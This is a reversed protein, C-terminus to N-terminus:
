ETLALSDLMGEGSHVGGESATAPKSRILYGAYGSENPEADTMPQGNFHVTFLGIESILNDVVKAHGDRIALAPREREHPHLRQMLAWADQEAASISQLKPLIDDGFICHGGGEGQNKLVWQSADGHAAFWDITDADVPKMEALVQKVQEAEVLSLGWRGLEAASMQTVLMQITKSTALQQSVTANVAVKHQEIQVRTSTLAECCAQEVIDTSCYDEYQYGARLYVADISGIGEVRLRQDAGTEIKSHLQRFSRRVTRVGREQLALELLRQDYVNDENDQVIMLFVPSGSEGSAFRIEHAAKAVGEALQELAQNGALASDGATEAWQQYADPWQNKLYRHLQHVRQGFPGMGAAIGNFEIVKPGQERDDMYDTRMMLLPQRVAAKPQASTGHIQQHLRLLHGFFPDAQGMPKLAQQLFAHDESIRDILRAILPTVQKLQTFMGQSISVPALSFACHRASGPGTKMAMGHMMAWENASDILDQTKPDTSSKM